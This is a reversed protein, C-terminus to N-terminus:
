VHFLGVNLGASMITYYSRRHQSQNASEYRSCHKDKFAMLNHAGPQFVSATAAAAAEIEPIWGDAESQV